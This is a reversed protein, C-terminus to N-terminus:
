PLMQQPCGGHPLALMHSRRVLMGKRAVHGMARRRGLVRRGLTNRGGLRRRTRAAAAQAQLRCRKGKPEHGCVYLSLISGRTGPAHLRRCIRKPM